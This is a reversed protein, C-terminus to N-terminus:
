NNNEMIDIYLNKIFKRIIDQEEKTYGWKLGDEKEMNFDPYYKLCLKEIFSPSPIKNINKKNAFLINQFRDVIISPEQHKKTIRNFFWSLFESNSMSYIFECLKDEKVVSNLM